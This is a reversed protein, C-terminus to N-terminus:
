WSSDLDLHVRRGAIDNNKEEVNTLYIQQIDYYLFSSSWIFHCRLCLIVKLGDCYELGSFLMSM